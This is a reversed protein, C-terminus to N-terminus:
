ASEVPQAQRSPKRDRHMLLFYLLAGILVSALGVLYMTRNNAASAVSGLLASGIGIGGDFFIFLTGTALGVKEKPVSQIAITQLCPFLSGFGLGIIAGSLLFLFASDAMALVFLGVAYLLLTPYVLYNRHLRDFMKGTFPRALVIMAAYVIFYYSSISELGIEKAYSPVFSLIGAYAVALFMSVLSVPVAKPEIYNRWDLRRKPAPSPATARPAAKAATMTKASSKRGRVVVISLLMGLVGFAMFVIFLTRFGANQIITLGLFPGLVMALNMALTFYGMGEGKRNDPILETVITGNATTAAGFSAGQVFRLVLLIGFVSIMPYIFGCVMFVATAVLVLLYRYPGDMWKGAFPRMIVAAIVFATLVWGAQQQSGGLEDTVFTPLTATLSYFTIFIFFSSFCISFFDRTWLSQRNDM